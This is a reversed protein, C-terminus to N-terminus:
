GPSTGAPREPTGIADFAGPYGAVLTTPASASWSRPIGATSACWCTATARSTPPWAASSSASACSRTAPPRRRHRPGVLGAGVDPDRGAESPGAASPRSRRPWPRTPSSPTCSSATRSGAPSSWPGTGSRRSCSRSTRTSPRTRASTPSTGPPDTTASSRRAAGCAACSASSTRSSRPPSGRCAWSTSSCTSAAASASPSAGAPSGTCPRRRVDRDAAPAPHQPQHRRHRDRAARQGRRRGRVARRGGQDNFRESLFVSGLGLREGEAVEALLDRPTASHGALGYFGLEPLDDM